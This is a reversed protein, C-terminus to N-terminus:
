PKFARVIEVVRRADDPSLHPGIPLSLVERHIAESIPYAGAAIGLDAYAPQLHPPVPYHILTQVGQETLYQQLRDRRRSRVVFLHWVPVAGEAVLPLLLETDRLGELYIAAIKARRANWEELHQLRVRLLAAQMEDLRSNVGKVDNYYKERSGYNRLL